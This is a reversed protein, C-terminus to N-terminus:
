YARGDFKTLFLNVQTYTLIYNKSGEVTLLPSSRAKIEEFRYGISITNMKIGITFNSEKMEKSNDSITYSYGEGNKESYNDVAEYITKFKFISKDIQSTINQYQKYCSNYDAESFKANLEISYLVNDAFTLELQMNNGSLCPNTKVDYLLLEKKVSDGKLYAPKVYAPKFLGDTTTKGGIMKEIIGYFQYLATTFNNTSNIKNRADFKSMGLKVPVINEFSCQAKLNNVAAALLLIFFTTCLTHNNRM